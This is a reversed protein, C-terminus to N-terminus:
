GRRVRAALTAEEDFRRMEVAYEVAEPADAPALAVGSRAPVLARVGLYIDPALTQNLAVEARCAARRQALSRQDLFPFAVPKKVKYARAGRLVVWSTHTERVASGPAAALAAVPPPLDSM